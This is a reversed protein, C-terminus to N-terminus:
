LDVVQIPEAVFRQPRGVKLGRGIEFGATHFPQAYENEFQQIADQFSAKDEPQFFPEQGVGVGALVIHFEDLEGCQQVM